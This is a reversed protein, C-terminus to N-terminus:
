DPHHDSVCNQSIFGISKQVFKNQPFSFMTLFVIHQFLTYKINKDRDDAMFHM